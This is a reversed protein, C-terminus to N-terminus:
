TDTHGPSSRPPPGIYSVCEEPLCQMEPARQQAAELANAAFVNQNVFTVLASIQAPDHGLDLLLAAVGLGVNPSLHSVVQAQAALISQIRWFPLRDRGRGRVWRELALYREDHERLPVGLGSIRRGSKLFRRAEAAMAEDDDIREGAAARLEM